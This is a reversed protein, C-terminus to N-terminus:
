SKTEKNKREKERKWDRHFRWILYVTSITGFIGGMVDNYNHAVMNIIGLGVLKIMEFFSDHYEHTSM